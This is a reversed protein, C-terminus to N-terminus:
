PSLETVAYGQKELAQLADAHAGYGAIRLARVADGGKGANVGAPTDVEPPILTARWFPNFFNPPERANGHRHYYALGASLVVQRTFPELKPDTLGQKVKSGAQNGGNDFSAGEPTFHFDFRLSWPNERPTIKSYDRELMAYLVPQGYLNDPTNVKTADTSSLVYDLFFPWIGNCVVCTGLTHGQPDADQRKDGYQHVDDTQQRDSSYVEADKAIGFLPLTSTACQLTFRFSGGRDLAWAALSTATGVREAARFDGYKEPGGFGAGGGSSGGSFGVAGFRRMGTAFAGSGNARSNVFPDGISGMTAYVSDSTSGETTLSAATEVETLSKWDGEKAPTTLQRNAAQALVKVMNKPDISPLIPPMAHICHPCVDPLEATKAQALQAVLSEILTLQVTRLGSAAGQLGLVQLGAARDDKDFLANANAQATTLAAQLNALAVACDAPTARSAQASAVAYQLAAINGYSAGTWSILSEEAAMAVMQGVQARNILAIANFTRATLVAESYAATDAAIQAEMRDHVRSAIGLTVMVTLSLVLLMLAFMVLTQGRPQSM